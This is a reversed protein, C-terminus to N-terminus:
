LRWDDSKLKLVFAFLMKKIEEVISALTQGSEQSIIQLDQSLILLCEVECASAYAINLFRAFEKSSTAWMFQVAQAWMITGGM